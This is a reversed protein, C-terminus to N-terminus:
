KSFSNMMKLIDDKVEFFADVVDPDFYKGRDALILEFAKEITYAEKYPRKALLADFVDALAAIRAEIPIDSGKLGHPYGTGDWREHHSLAIIEGMRIFEATSDKLIMAGMTTHSKMIEWEEPTLKGPKLLISDPIGMKGIDHMPAAYLIIETSAEDMGISKSILECYKSMRLIHTGTDDDRYESAKSLRHISELAAKRTMELTHKLQWTKRAIELSLEHKYYENLDLQVKKIENEVEKRETIDEIALLIIKDLGLVREIQRANLLMIRKGITAFEHEVEYNNFVAQEPLITELLERLKPIDWRKNGLDYILNGVTEEKDVKFFEYFSKSANVVRLDQDLVLL